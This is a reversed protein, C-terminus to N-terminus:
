AAHDTDEKPPAAKKGHEGKSGGRVGRDGQKKRAMRPVFENGWYLFESKVDDYKARLTMENCMVIFDTRAPWADKNRRFIERIRRKMLNRDVARKVFKKPVKIGIRTCDVDKLGENSCYKIRMLKGNFNNGQQNMVRQFDRQSKIRERPRFVEGSISEHQTQGSRLSHVDTCAIRHPSTHRALRTFLRTRTNAEMMLREAGVSVFSNEEIM